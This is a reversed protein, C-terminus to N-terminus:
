DHSWPTVGAGLHFVLGAAAGCCAAAPVRCNRNVRAPARRQGIMAWRTVTGGGVCAEVGQGYEPVWGAKAWRELWDEVPGADETWDALKRAPPQPV